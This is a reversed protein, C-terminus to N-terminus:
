PNKLRQGKEPRLNEQVLAWGDIVWVLFVSEAEPIYYHIELTVPKKLKLRDDHMKAFPGMGAERLMRMLGALENAEMSHFLFERHVNALIPPPTKASMDRELVDTHRDYWDRWWFGHITNFPILLCMALLLSYQVVTKLKEPGYLEWIFYAMFFAPVALLVYRLPWGGYISIVAARGWGFVLAFATVSAFFVLVGFARNRETGKHHLVGLLLIVASSLLVVAVTMTSLKWSSRAVPGFGLALFKATTELTALIGPNPPTWSPREYGYYYLATLSLALLASGILFGSIWRQGSQRKSMHWNVLGNYGFWLAMFPVFLLGNVGCLPLLVMCTGAVLATGKTRIIPTSVIVLLVALTLATPLVFSLQWSWFLNEWNGLHLLTIPFFADAFITRGNRLYRAVQIAALSVAGLAIVNFFMGVRFDGNAAKLLGLLILRPLPIRHENNQAWLWSVVDPENGTLPPVLLWDETLPINRGYKILCILAVFMMIFWVGLVFARAGIDPRSEPTTAIVQQVKQSQM